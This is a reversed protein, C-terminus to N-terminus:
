FYLAASRILEVALEMRFRSQGWDGKIEGLSGGFGNNGEQNTALDDKPDASICSESLNKIQKGEWFNLTNKFNRQRKGPSFYEYNASVKEM